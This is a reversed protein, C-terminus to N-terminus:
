ATVGIAIRRAQLKSIMDTIQFYFVLKVSKVERM